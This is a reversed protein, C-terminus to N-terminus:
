GVRLAALRDLSPRCGDKDGVELRDFAAHTRALADAHAAANGSAAEALGLAEWAFFAELPADGQARVIDLCAQAHRRAEEPDGAELWIRALRYEARETELWTGARAWHERAARAALIMWEREDASRARREELACALNNGVMALTRVAADDDAFASSAAETLAQRFWAAARPTDRLALTGAALATARVRESAGLECRRDVGECLALSADLLRVSAQTSSGAAPHSSLRQLLARGDALRGLHEGFVHHALRALAAVDGDSGALAIGEAAIRAAVGASDDAHDSWALDLWPAFAM